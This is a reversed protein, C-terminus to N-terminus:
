CNQVAVVDLGIFRTSLVSNTTAKLALLTQM